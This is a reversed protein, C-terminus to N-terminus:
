RGPRGPVGAAALLPALGDVTLAFTGRGAEEGVTLVGVVEGLANLLPGGSCRPTVQLGTRYLHLRQEPFSEFGNVVGDCLARPGAGVDAPEAAWVVDGVRVLTGHGLRLPTEATPESLQLLALDMHPSDPLQINRVSAPGSQLVVQVRRPGVVAREGGAPDTLWHRNTVVLRDSILFGSGVVADAGAGPTVTVSVFAPRARALFAEPGNQDLVVVRLRDAEALLAERYGDADGVEALCHLRRDIDATHELPHASKRLTELASRYAGTDHLNRFRRLPDTDTAALKELVANWRTVRALHPALRDLRERIRRELHRTEDFDDEADPQRLHERAKAALDRLPDAALTLETEAEGSDNFIELLVRQTAEDPPTAPPRHAALRSRFEQWRSEPDVRSAEDALEALRRRVAEIEIQREHRRTMADLERPSLLTTDSVRISNSNGTKKDRATVELVCSPDIAFRVEIEPTGKPAPPIDVLRFQGVKAQPSLSGNFIEIKVTTQNDETTTYTATAETPITTNAAILESFHPRRAEDDDVVRIGMPLPTVDLLLTDKLKGDLVAAQLAAGCAVASRPEQIVTRKLGFADEVLTRVLPSLMPGGVLVLRDAKHKLAAVFAACTDRLISLPQELFRALEARSLELTVDRGDVFHLLSYAAQEQASLTIKLYEAAVDLRRRALGTPPVTIGESELRAALARGIVGDFDSGGYHNDGLVQRVEYVADGVELYSVDLTGAGLDVVAVGGSLGRERGAAMCAATPEHILRVPEVGAIECADRTAHKQNNRFYAPITLIARSRQLRLDHNDGLWTLWEDRVEGLEARALEAVRERVREALLDEVLGRAHRILRAAVEEPRYTRDRVRFVAKTGMKRKASGIHGLLRNAFIEEGALGVLENGEEDLSLTSAFQQHGKWPCLVPRGLETDYVAAASTTTGLDLGWIGAFRRDIDARARQVWRSAREEFPRRGRADVVDLAAAVLSELVPPLVAENRLRRLEEVIRTSRGTRDLARLCHHALEELDGTRRLCEALRPDEIADDGLWRSLCHAAAAFDGARMFLATAADPRGAEQHLRAAGVLDGGAERADARAARGERTDEDKLVRDADGFLEARRYLRHARYVDGAEEAHRAAQATEGADEEFRSWEGFAAPLDGDGARRTLEGFHRRGAALVAARLGSLEERRDTVAETGHAARDLHGILEQVQLAAATFDRSEVRGDLEQRCLGALRALDDPRDAPCAALAESFRGLRELCESARDARGADEFRPLAMAYQGSAFFLEGLHGALTRVAAEDGLAAALQLGAEADAPRPSAACCELAKTRRDPTDALRVAEVGHGLFRRVEFLDPLLAEPLQAFYASWLHADRDLSTRAVHGRLARELTGPELLGLDQWRQLHVVLRDADGDAGLREALGDRAQAQLDDLRLRTALEFVVTLTSRDDRLVLDRLRRRDEPEFAPGYLENPIRTDYAEFLGLALSPRAELALGLARVYASVGKRTISPGGLSKEAREVARRVRRPAGDLSEGLASM